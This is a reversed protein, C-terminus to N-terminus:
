RCCLKLLHLRAQRDQAVQKILPNVVVQCQHLLRRPFLDPPMIRRSSIAWAVRCRGGTKNKSSGVTPSSGTARLVM